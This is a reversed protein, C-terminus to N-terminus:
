REHERKIIWLHAAHGSPNRGRGDNEILGLARLESVRPQIARTTMGLALAIEDATQHPHKGIHDFVIRRLTGAIGAIDEAAARSTDPDRWGPGHPYDDFLDPDRPRV